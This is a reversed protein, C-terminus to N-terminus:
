KCVEALEARVIDNSGLKEIVCDSFQKMYNNASKNLKVAETTVEVDKRYIIIKSQVINTLAALKEKLQPVYDELCKISVVANNKLNNLLDLDALKDVQVKYFNFAFPNEYFEMKLTETDLVCCMHSYNFADETFNQGTLNGLNLITEKENLFSGNHLHGNLYLDCSNEIESLEFGEQSLYMGYRIGKIDNHSFVIHKKNPNLDTLYDKLPKREDEIAYPIFYLDAYQDIDYKNPISEIKFNPKNLADTSNFITYVRNYEHNGVIFHSVINENWKVEKLATIEEATLDSRDFFDGLCVIEDCQTDVSLKQVWNITNILNNLRTTYKDGRSTVISSTASWHVDGFVLIRM